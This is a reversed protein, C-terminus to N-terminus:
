SIQGTNCFFNTITMLNRMKLVQGNNESNREAKYSAYRRHFTFITAFPSYTLIQFSLVM